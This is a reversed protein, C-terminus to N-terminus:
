GGGLNGGGGGGGWYGGGGGGGCSNGVCTGTGGNNNHGNKRGAAVNTGGEGSGPWDNGNYCPSTSEGILGGGHGGPCDPSCGGGGGAVVIRSTLDNSNTRVDSAGGGNGSPYGGEIGAAGGNWGGQGGVLIYFTQGVNVNEGVTFYTNVYGGKGVCDNPNYGGTSGSAGYAEIRLQKANAPITFQQISGTFSFSTTDIDSFETSLLSSKSYTLIKPPNVSLISELNM